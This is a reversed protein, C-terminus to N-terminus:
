ASSNASISSYIRYLCKETGGNYINNYNKELYTLIKQQTQPCTTDNPPCIFGGECTDISVYAPQNQQITNLWYEGQSTNFWPYYLLTAETNLYYASLPHTILVQGDIEKGDFFTFYPNTDIEQIEFHIGFFLLTLLIFLLPTKIYKTYGVSALIALYPLFIIAFRLEKHPLQTFYIAFGIFLLILEYRKKKLAYFIGPIALLFLINHITLQQIYYFWPGQFIWIGANKVVVSAFSLTAIPSGYLMINLIFFPITILIFGFLLSSIKKLAHLSLFLFIVLLIGQPFKTLFALGVFIGTEFHKEKLFYHLAVLAFFVSPIETYLRINFFFFIWTFSLLFASLLGVKENFLKKGITYTLYIIGLSFFTTLIYGWIVININFYHGYGLLFPWLLPRIPEWLGVHGLTFLYKSMSLYVAADWWINHNYLLYLIRTLLTIGLISLIRKNM